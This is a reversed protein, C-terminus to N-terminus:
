YIFPIEVGVIRHKGEDMSLLLQERVVSIYSTLYVYTAEYNAFLTVQFCRWVHSKQHKKLFFIEASSSM